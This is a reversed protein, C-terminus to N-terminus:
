LCWLNIHVETLGKKLATDDRLEQNYLKVSYIESTSLPNSRHHTRGSRLLSNIVQDIVWTCICFFFGVACTSTFVVKSQLMIICLSIGFEMDEIAKKFTIGSINKQLLFHICTRYEHQNPVRAWLFGNVINLQGWHLFEQPEIHSIQFYWMSRFWKHLTTWLTHFYAFITM